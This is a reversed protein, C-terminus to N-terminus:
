ITFKKKLFSCKRLKIKLGAKLLCKFPKDLMQLYEKETRSYILIDDIYALYGSGQDQTSTKKLGLFTM